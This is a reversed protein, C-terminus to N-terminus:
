TNPSTNDIITWKGTEPDETLYFYQETYGDNMFTKTHDYEVYYKTWVVVFHEALYDDTWGRVEALESGSYMKIVRETEAEDIKIEDVRVAITYKKNIQNEIASKVTETPIASPKQLWPDFFGLKYATFGCLALLAAIVAILALTRRISRVKRGATKISTTNMVNREKAEIIYKDDIMEFADLIYNANM